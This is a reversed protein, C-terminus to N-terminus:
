KGLSKNGNNCRWTYIILLLVGIFIFCDAFNFIPYDYGFLYIDIFDVVYGNFIRDIFNSIAGGIIMSYAIKEEIKDPKNKYIYLILGIIIVGSIFLVLYSKDELISWAAGTNKVYTISLFNKIIVTSQNPFFNNAVILKSIIDIGLVMIILIIMMEVGRIYRFVNM